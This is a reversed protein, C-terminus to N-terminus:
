TNKSSELESALNRKKLAILIGAIDVLLSSLLFGGADDMYGGSAWAVILLSAFLLLTSLVLGLKPAAFCVLLFLVSIGLVPIEVFLVFLPTFDSAISAPSAVFLGTLLFVKERTM